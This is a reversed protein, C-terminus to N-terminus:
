KDADVLGGTLEQRTDTLQLVATAQYVPATTLALYTAAGVSLLTLALVLWMRRRLMALIQRLDLPALSPEPEDPDAGWRREAPGGRSPPLARRNIPSLYQSM